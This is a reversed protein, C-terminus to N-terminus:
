GRATPIATLREVAIPDSPTSRPTRRPALALGVARAAHRQHLKKYEITGTPLVGNLIFM